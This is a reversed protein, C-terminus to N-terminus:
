WDDEEGNEDNEDGLGDYVGPQDGAVHRWVVLKHRNIAELIVGPLSELTFFRDGKTGRHDDLCVGADVIRLTAREVVCELRRHRFRYQVVMEGRNRSPRADLLEAGSLALAARAAAEFDHEALVRRGLATGMNKMAEQRREEAQRLKEEEARKIELQRRYEEAQKRQYSEWRFVLDLAPTVNPIDAVSDKRDQYAAQVEAEAGQPFEQRLYILKGDAWRVATARTFRDLGPEVLYVFETQEILKDPNPDVRASDPIMRDGALYGRVYKWNETLEPASELREGVSAKRTNTVKFSYWGYEPPRRGSISWTRDFSCVKAEGTWPLTKTEGEIPSLLDQWGM